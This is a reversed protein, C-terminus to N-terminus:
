GAHPQLPRPLFHRCREILEELARTVYTKKKGSRGKRTVFSNYVSALFYTAVRIFAASLVDNSLVFGTWFFLVEALIFAWSNAGREYLKHPNHYGDPDFFRYLRLLMVLFLMTTIFFLVLGLLTILISVWFSLTFVGTSNGLITNIIPAVLVLSIVWIMFVQWGYPIHFRRTLM